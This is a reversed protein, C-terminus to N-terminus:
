TCLPRGFSSKSCEDFEILKGKETKSTKIFPIVLKKIMLLFEYKSKTSNEWNHENRM